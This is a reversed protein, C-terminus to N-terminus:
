GRETLVKKFSDAKQLLQIIIVAIMVFVGIVASTLESTAGLHTLGSKMITIILAGWISGTLTGRGGSIPTGGIVVAAIAQFEIGQAILANGTAVRGALVVGSISALVSCIIYCYVTVRVVNIGLFRANEKSVGIAYCHAGFPTFRFIFAIVFACAMIVWFSFPMGIFLRNSFDLFGLDDIHISGGTTIALSLSRVIYLMSFTVIFPLIKAKGILLGTLLGQVASALITITLAIWFNWGISLLAAILTGALGVTSSVSLDIGGSVIVITMGLSVIILVTGQKIINYLNDLTFFTDTLASFSIILVIIVYIIAPIRTRMGISYKKNLKM